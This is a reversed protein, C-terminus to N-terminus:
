TPQSAGWLDRTAGNADENNLGDYNLEGESDASSDSEAEDASEDEHGVDRKPDRAPRNQQMRLAFNLNRFRVTPCRVKRTSLNENKEWQQIQALRVLMSVKTHEDSMSNPTLGMVFTALQAIPQTVESCDQNLKEWWEHPGEEPTVPCDFPAEGRYYKGVQAKLLEVAVDERLGCIPAKRDNYEIRLLDLLFRGAQRVPDPLNVTSAPVQRSPGLRMPPIALPNANAQLLIDSKRYCPDLIFGTHYVDRPAQEIMAKWRFNAICRIDEHVGNPMPVHPDTIIDHLEALTALWFVYVDSVTSHTLLEELKASFAGNAFGDVFNEHFATSFLTKGFSTLGTKINLDKRRERLHANAHSSKRFFKVMQRCCDITKKFYPLNGIDKLMLQLHHPADVLNIIWSFEKVVTARAVRTNGTNDSVIGCFREPGITKLVKIM